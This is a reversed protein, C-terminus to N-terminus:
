KTDKRTMADYIDVHKAGMFDLRYQAQRADGKALLEARTADDTTISVIARRIAETDMPAFVLAADGVTEVLAPTDSCAVPIGMTMAEVVPLGFGEYLAPAILARAGTYLALLDSDEISGLLLVRGALLDRTSALATRIDTYDTDERGVIVLDYSYEPQGRVIAAYADILRVLNKHERVTGVSLIYDRRIRYREKTQSVTLTDEIRRMHATDIGHRIVHIRDESINLHHVLDHQTCESPTIIMRARRTVARILHRYGMRSVSSMMRSGPYIFPILDHITIIFPRVYGIPAQHSLFHVLDCRERLIDRVFVTQERLSGMPVNVTVVRINARTVEPISPNNAFLVYDHGTDHSDLYRVLLEAYRGPGAALPGYLRCDIGIKM